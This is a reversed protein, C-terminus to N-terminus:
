KLINKDVEIVPRIGCSEQSSGRTTSISGTHTVYWNTADSDELTAKTSTWYGTLPGIGTTNCGYAACNYTNDFLWAYKNTGIDGTYSISSNTHLYYGNFSEASDTWGKFGTIQNIEAVSILRSTSKITSNWSATDEALKTNINYYNICTSTDNSLLLKVKSNEESDLFAYWKLCKNNAEFESVAESSNCKTNTVPNYYVVQGNQYLNPNTITINCEDESVKNSSISGDDEIEVCYGSVYMKGTVNGDKDYSIYGKTAQEGDYTFNNKSLDVTGASINDMINKMYYTKAASAINRASAEAAAKKSDEIINLVAPTAILAIVALIVIVALLEILTFGKKKM